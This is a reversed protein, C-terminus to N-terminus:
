GLTLSGSNANILSTVIPSPSATGGSVVNVLVQRTAFEPVYNSHYCEMTDHEAASTTRKYKTSEFRVM